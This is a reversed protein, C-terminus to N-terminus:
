YCNSLTKARNGLGDHKLNLGSVQSMSEFAHLVFRFVMSRKAVKVRMLYCWYVCFCIAKNAMPLIVIIILPMGTIEVLKSGM